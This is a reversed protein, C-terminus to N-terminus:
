INYNRFIYKKRNEDGKIKTREKLFEFYKKSLKYRKDQKNLVKLRQTMVNVVQSIRVHTYKGIKYLQELKKITYKVDQLTKYKIKITDKPNADSYLDYNKFYLNKKKKTKTKNHKITKYKNSKYKRKIKLSGGILKDTPTNYSDNNTLPTYYKENNLHETLKNLKHKFTKGKTKIFTNINTYIKNIDGIMSPGTKELYKFGLKSYINNDKRHLASADDLLVTKVNFLKSYAIASLLLFTGIGSRSMNFNDFNFNTQLAAIYLENKSKGFLGSKMRDIHFKISGITYLKNIKNMPNNEDYLYFHVSIFDDNVFIDYCMDYEKPLLNFLKNNLFEEPIYKESKTNSICGTLQKDIYSM